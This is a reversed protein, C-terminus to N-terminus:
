SNDNSDLKISSKSENQFKDAIVFYAMQVFSSIVGSIAVGNIGYINGLIIILTIQITLFIGSGILVIKSKTMGLYKSIYTSTIGAPVISFSMIQIIPVVETFKPFIIPVFIPSLMISLISFIISIGIIIKKISKTSNGTSDHTLMYTFLMGPILYVLAMFQVGLQYNGLLSFGLLPAVIIKDLSGKFANSIDLMFSNIAFKSRGQFIKFDIKIEKFSQYIIFSFVLFSLAIGLLIGQLGIIHYFIISFGVLLIKQIIIIKSYKLFIKRGILEATILTFIVFGIIYLSVTIDKAIIFFIVSATIGSSILGILFVTSQIKVNKAGYVVMLNSMGALSITSSIIGISILYSIEGYGETGLISAMYLWFIGGIANAIITSVSYFTLDRFKNFIVNIKNRIEKMELLSSLQV